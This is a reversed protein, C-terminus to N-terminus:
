HIHAPNKDIIVTVDSFNLNESCKNRAKVLIDTIDADTKSKIIIQYRYKNKIKSVACPLPGLISFDGKGL